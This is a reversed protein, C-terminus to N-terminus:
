GPEVHRDLLCLAAEIAHPLHRRDRVIWPLGRLAETLATRAVPDHRTHSLVKLTHGIVARPHRRLWSFWLANRTQVQRRRRPDRSPSPHHHAVVDDVYCARWGAAVLDAALLAEEGGIDFRHHFGGVALYAARRVVAGCAIFGLVAPGPATPERDLPSSAMMACVPDEQDDAGVLVRAALLGLHPDAELVDAARSLAGPAWWSDDDSFAVYPARSREVGITRAAAGVNRALAIVDVSPWAARVAEATGDISGNDVVTIAPCEPLALLRAITALLTDRRNRTVITVSVRNQVATVPSVGGPRRGVVIRVPV